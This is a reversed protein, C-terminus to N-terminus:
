ANMPQIKYMGQGPVLDVVKAYLSSARVLQAVWGIAWYNIRKNGLRHCKGRSLGRSVQVNVQPITSMNFPSKLIFFAEKKDLLSHESM